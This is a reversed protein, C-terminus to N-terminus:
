PKGQGPDGKVLVFHQEPSGDEGTREWQEVLETPTKECYALFDVVSHPDTACVWLRSGVAMGALKARTRLIPLPCNIGRADLFDDYAPTPNAGDTM